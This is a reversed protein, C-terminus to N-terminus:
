FVRDVGRMAHSLSARDSFDGVVVEVTRPVNTRREDRVLARVQEGSGALLRALHRGVNGTAGTVLIM